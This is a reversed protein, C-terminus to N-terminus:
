KIRQNHVFSYYSNCLRKTRQTDSCAPSRSPMERKQGIHTALNKYKRYGIEFYNCKDLKYHWEIILILRDLVLSFFFRKPWLNDILIKYRCCKKKIGITRGSDWIKALTMMCVLIWCCVLIRLENYCCWLWLYAACCRETDTYIRAREASIIEYYRWAMQLRHIDASCHVYSRWNTRMAVASFQSRACSVLWTKTCM